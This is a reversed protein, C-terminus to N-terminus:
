ARRGYGVATWYFSRNVASNNSDKFAVTFGTDSVSTVNYYDGSAMNQAVIGISPLQANAAVDTGTLGTFFAKGFTINSIGSVGTSVITSSSETRQDLSATYGLQDILINQDTSTSTLDTKFQFGRGSFTGNAFPIWSSWTPSSSPDDTTTRLKLVANVSDIIGGDWDERADVDPWNDM